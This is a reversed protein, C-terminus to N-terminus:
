SIKFVNLCQFLKTKGQLEELSKSQQVSLMEKHNKLKVATGTITVMLMGKLGGAEGYDIDVGILANGGLLLAKQRAQSFCAKVGIDIKSEYTASKHGFFDSFDSLTEAILGTGLVSQATIIGLVDYEWGLPCHLSVIPIAEIRPVLFSRTKRQMEKIKEEHEKFCKACYAGNTRQLVFNAAAIKEQTLLKTQSGIETQCNPCVVGATWEIVQWGKERVYKEAEDQNLYEGQRAIEEGTEDIFRGAFKKKM